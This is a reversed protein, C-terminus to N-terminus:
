EFFPTCCGSLCAQGDPCQDAHACAAGAACSWGTCGPASVDGPCLRCAAPDCARGCSPSPTCPPCRAPDALSAEDCMPAIAPHILINRGGIRCCGFCDCGQPTAPECSARCRAGPTCDRAADFPLLGPPCSALLCCAHVRCGDDSPTSNGDVFCDLLPAEQHDGPIGTTFSGERDDFAADCGPDFGDIRGDGDDDRCNSCQTPGPTCGVLAGGDDVILLLAGDRAGRGDPRDALAADVVPRELDDGCGASVGLGLMSATLIVRALYRAPTSEPV